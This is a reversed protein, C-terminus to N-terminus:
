SVIINKTDLFHSIKHSEVCNYYQDYYHCVEYGRYPLNIDSVAILDNYVNEDEDSINKQFAYLIDQNTYTKFSSSKAYNVFSVPFDSLSVVTTRTVSSM